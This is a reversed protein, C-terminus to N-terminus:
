LTCNKFQIRLLLYFTVKLPEPTLAAHETKAVAQASFSRLGQSTVFRSAMNCCESILYVIILGFRRSFFIMGVLIHM